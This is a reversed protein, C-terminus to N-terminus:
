HPGGSASSGKLIDQKTLARFEAFSLSLDIETPQGDAHFVMNGPNYSTQVSRLYCLLPQPMAKNTTGNYMFNIKFLNPFKYGVPLGGAQVAEPYLETRFEKIIKEIERAESASTAVMRFTFAFERIPVGQFMTRTNPNIMKQLAIRTMNQVGGSPMKNFARTAAVQAAEQNMIDGKLLSFLNAIGEMVGTGVSGALSEGNRLAALATAGGPGLNTNTDYVVADNLQVGPPFYLIINKNLATPDLSLDINTGTFSAEQQEKGKVDSPILDQGEYGIAGDNDAEAALRSQDSANETVKKGAFTNVLFPADIINKAAQADIDYPNVSYLAFKIAAKYYDQNELPYRLVLPPGMAGKTNGGNTGLQNFLSSPDAIKVSTTTGAASPADGDSPIPQSYDKSKWNGNKAKVMKYQQEAM